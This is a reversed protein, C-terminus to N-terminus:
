IWTGFATRLKRSSSALKSIWICRGFEPHLNRIMSTLESDGIFAGFGSPLSRFGSAYQSNRMCAGSAWHLSYIESTLEWDPIYAGFSRRLSGSGSESESIRVCPGFDRHRNRIKFASVSEWNRGEPVQRIRGMSGWNLSQFLSLNM